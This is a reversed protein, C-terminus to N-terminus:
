GKESPTVVNFGADKSTKLDLERIVATGAWRDYLALKSTTGCWTFAIFVLLFVIVVALNGFTVIPQAARPLYGFDIALSVSSVAAALLEPSRRVRWRKARQTLTSPTFNQKAIRTGTLMRGPTGAYFVELTTYLLWSYVLFSSFVAVARFAPMRLSREMAREVGFGFFIVTFLITLAFWIVGDLMGAGIRVDIDARKFTQEQPVAERAAFELEALEDVPQVARPLTPDVVADEALTNDEVPEVAAADSEKDSDGADGPLDDVIELSEPDSEEAPPTIEDENGVDV